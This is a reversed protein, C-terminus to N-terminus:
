KASPDSISDPPAGFLFKLPVRLRNGWSTEDHAGGEDVRVMYEVDPQWGWAGLVAALREVYPRYGAEIGETGCDVYLRVNRPYAGSREVQAILMGEGWPLHPSIAGVRGFVDGHRWGLYISLLGGMGSGMVGTNEPGTLTRYGGDIRPMLEGTLFRAYRPGGESPDQETVRGQGSGIGVAILPELEGADIMATLTEDVGWDIGRPATGPDFLNQGDHLYLVPYRREIEEGYGPPLWVQVVPARGLNVSQFSELTVLTGTVQRAGRGGDAPRPTGAGFRTAAHQVTKAGDAIVAFNPAAIGDADLMVLDSSGLTFNYEVKFGRPVEVTKERMSAAGEMKVGGPDWNGLAATNGTVHVDPTDPPLRLLIHIPVTGSSADDSSVPEEGLALFPVLVLFLIFRIVGRPSRWNM